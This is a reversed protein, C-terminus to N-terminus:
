GKWDNKVNNLDFMRVHTNMALCVSVILHIDVHWNLEERNCNNSVLRGSLYWKESMELKRTKTM